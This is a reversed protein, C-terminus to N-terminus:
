DEVMQFVYNSDISDIQEMQESTVSVKRLNDCEFLPTYDEIALDNIKLYGLRHLSRILSIDTIATGDLCLDKINAAKEVGAASKVTKGSVMLHVLQPLSKVISLDKGTYDWLALGKIQSLNPVEEYLTYQNSGSYLFYLNPLKGLTSFDNNHVYIDCIYLTSITSNELFQLDEYTNGDLCVTLLRRCKSLDPLVSVPNDSICLAKLQELTEIVSFDEIQNGSLYLEEIPLGALPSIDTIKQDCLFLEKLNTMKSLESLDEIEGRIRNADFARNCMEEGLGQTDADAGYIENGIVILQTIRGYDEETIDEKGLMTEIAEQLGGDLLQNQEEPESGAPETTPNEKEAPKEGTNEKGAQESTAQVKDVKLGANEPRKHFTVVMFFAAVILFVAAAAEVIGILRLKRMMYREDIKNMVRELARQLKPVSQYRHAPDFAVAKQMIKQIRLYILKEEAKCGVNENYLFELVKGIGYVDTRVDTQSYGYQEPAANGETGFFVTDKEKDEKYNRSTEFDILHVKGRYDIILNRPKIDRHLVPPTLAHLKTTEECIGIVIRLIEQVSLVRNKEQYKELDMGQIYSKLLYETENEKWYLSTKYEEPFAQALECIRQHEPELVNKGDKCNRTKLLYKEDTERDAVLYCSKETREYVCSLVHYSKLFKPLEIQCSLENFQQLFDKVVDDRSM